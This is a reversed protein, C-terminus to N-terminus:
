LGLRLLRLLNSARHGLRRAIEDRRKGLKSDTVGRRELLGLILAAGPDSRADLYEGGILDLEKSTFAGSDKSLREGLEELTDLPELWAGVALRGIDTRRREPDDAEIAEPGVDAREAAFRFFAEADLVADYRLARYGQSNLSAPDDGCGALVLLPALLVAPLLRLRPLLARHPAM